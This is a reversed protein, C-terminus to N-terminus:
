NRQNEDVCKAFMTNISMHMCEIFGNTAAYDPSTRVKDLGLKNCLSTMLNNNFDNGQDSLIQLLVGVHVFIKSVLANAVTVAEKKPLPIADAWKTFHDIYTLM